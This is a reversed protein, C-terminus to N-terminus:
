NNLFDIVLKKARLLTDTLDKNLLTADFKGEFKMESKAKSIRQYLSDETDTKRASLRQELIELSPPKVFVALAKNGFYKKLNVGGKVDVDFIVQKGENWLREIESKLTGYFKGPYVEEWELFEEKKIKKKFEDKTLFYYDERSKEVSERKDRTCASISFGLSPIKEILFRVITTKGSGSPAAFIIAKTSILNLKNSNLSV